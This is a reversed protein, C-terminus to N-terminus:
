QDSTPLLDSTEYYLTNFSPLGSLQPPHLVPSFNLARRCIATTGADLIMGWGSVADAGRGTPVRFRRAAVMRCLRASHRPRGARACRWGPVSGRRAPRHRLSRPAVSDRRAPIGKSFPHHMKLLPNSEKGLPVIGNIFGCDGHPFPSHGSSLKHTGKTLPTPGLLFNGNGNSFPILGKNFPLFAVLLPIRSLFLHIPGKFFPRHLHLFTVIGNGFPHLLGLRPRIGKSFPVHNERAPSGDASDGSERTRAFSGVRRSTPANALTRPKAGPEPSPTFGSAGQRSTGHTSERSSAPAEVCGTIDGRGTLMRCLEAPRIRGHRPRHQVFLVKAANHRRTLSSGDSNILAAEAPLFREAAARGLGSALRTWEVNEAGRFGTFVNM